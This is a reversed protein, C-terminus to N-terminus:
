MANQLCRNIFRSPLGHVFESERAELTFVNHGVGNMVVLFSRNGSQLWRMHMLLADDCFGDREGCCFYAPPMDRLADVDYYLPSIDPNRADEFERLFASSMQKCSDLSTGFGRVRSPMGNSHDMLGVESIMGALKFDHKQRMRIATVVALHGGASEGRVFIRDTDYERLMHEVLWLAAAECDDPATPYKNQPALRYDVAAVVLGCEEVARAHSFDFDHANFMVWAGGHTHLLGGRVEGEPAIYRIPLDGGPGPITIQQVRDQIKEAWRQLHGPVFNERNHAETKARFDAWDEDSKCVSLDLVQGARPMSEFARNKQLTDETPDIVLFGSDFLQQELLKNDM